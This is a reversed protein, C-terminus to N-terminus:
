FNYRLGVEIRRGPDAAYLQGFLPSGLVGGVATGNTHNLLNTSRLNLAVTQAEREAAHPLNFTRSLNGDLHM